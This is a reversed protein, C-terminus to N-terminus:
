RRATKLELRRYLLDNVQHGLREGRREFKTEPRFSPRPSYPGDTAMNEFGPQAAMVKAMHAAYPEWDTALHLLGGDQLKASLKEVLETQVIRRKSHKRKHWPDPFYIQIRAFSTDPLCEDIVDVADALYLRVNRLNQTAAGNVLAGAGPPHVEIGVFDKDPEAAAMQLLSDAMGFGIELVVPARRGFVQEWEVRGGALRLRYEDGFQQLARLQSNTMRGSRVVYSRIPKKRYEPFFEVPVKQM